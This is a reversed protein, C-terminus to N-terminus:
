LISSELLCRLQLRNKERLLIALDSLLLMVLFLIGLQMSIPMRLITKFPIELVSNRSVHSNKLNRKSCRTCFRFCRLWQCPRDSGVKLKELCIKQRAIKNRYEGLRSEAQDLVDRVRDLDGQFQNDQAAVTVCAALDARATLDEVQAKWRELLGMSQEGEMLTESDTEPRKKEVTDNHFHYISLKLGEATIPVPRTSLTEPGRTTASRM